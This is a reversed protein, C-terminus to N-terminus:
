MKIKDFIPSADMVNIDNNSRAIGFHTHWFKSTKPAVAELMISTDQYDGHCYQGPSANPCNEMDWHTCDLYRLM